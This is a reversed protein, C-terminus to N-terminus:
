VLRQRRLLDQVQMVTQKSSIEMAAMIRQDIDGGGGSADVNNIITVGQSQGKTHDIVSENPHVMALTGGKGDLGGARAGRGTYGGGEFSKAFIGDLSGAMSGKEKISSKFQMANSLSKALNMGAAKTHDIVTENPHVMAMFGGKGDLGGARAGKGTFGGGEFSQSRIQAVQALGSAVTVGAMIANIPPPYSALAKTAGTYTNMIAQGIQMAKQLAFMKKSHQAVGSMEKSMESLVHKTQDTTTMKKFDALKKAGEMQAKQNTSLAKREEPKDQPQPTVSKAIVEATQRAKVQIADFTAMIQDSPLPQNVVDRFAAYNRDALADLEKAADAAWQKVVNNEIEEWGLARALKNYAAIPLDFASAIKTIGDLALSAFDAWAASLLYFGAKIGQVGDMIFAFGKVLSKVVTQGINGFDAYDLASQRFQTAVHEIIPSFSTALQNGIGTFVGQARTVADNANEIQAADVRSIAIGLKQAEAAMENLGASGGKLTNVLAVGESDFLKMALRVKDSQNGVGQMADAVMNMQKDLPLKQLEVANIGLEALADKAEGTGNAAEAVRRTMRQLAMNMTQTSVGSIEAAHQLGVLAETAVGLKDATKAISDVADMRMKVFAAGAAGVAAVTATGWKAFSTVSAGVSKGVKAMRQNLSQFAKGTQDSATLKVKYNANAM